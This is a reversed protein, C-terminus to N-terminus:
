GDRGDVRPRIWMPTYIVVFIMFALLWLWGAITIFQMYSGQTFLPLIVRLITALNILFFALVMWHNTQMERGTHGLSVRAMMGLTMIGIGGVTFAHYALGTENLSLLSLSKIIFGVIIWAYALQLVWVLPVKWIKSSYWGALRSSHVVVAFIALYATLVRDGYFIDSLAFCIISLPSLREIWTWKRTTAGTVGRETFFPIVRGGMLAILLIVLYLMVRSGVISSLSIVDLASLHVLLNALAMLLLLPIFIVNNWQKARILPVAIVIALLPIFMLDSVAVFWNPIDSILPSIRGALWVASLLILRWGHIIKVGTWNGAATLLFGAIVAVSYGFLMEHAHWGVSSYYVTVKPLYSVFVTKPVLQSLWILILIVASSGAFLFFPRFGLAFLLFTNDNKRDPDDIQVSM